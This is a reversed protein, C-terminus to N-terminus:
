ERGSRREKRTIFGWLFAGAVVIIAAAVCFAGVGVFFANDATMLEM